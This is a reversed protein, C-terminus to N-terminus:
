PALLTNVMGDIDGVDMLLNGNFDACPDFAGTLANVFGQMDAGDVAGNGNMDGLVTACM